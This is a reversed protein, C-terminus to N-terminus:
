AEVAAPHMRSLAEIVQQAVCPWRLKALRDMAPAVLDARRDAQELVQRMAAVWYQPELPLIWAIGSVVERATAYDGVLAPTGCALAELPPRGYGEAVSPFCLAIAGTYLARLEDDSVYGLTHVWEPRDTRDGAYIRKLDSGVLVVTADPHARRVEQMAQLVLGVNKRRDSAGVCLFYPKRIGFHTLTRDVEDSSSPACFPELGQTILRIRDAAVGCTRQIQEASWNSFTLVAQARAICPRVVRRHWLAYSQAFWEPHTLPLVDHVVVANHGGSFSVTNAPHLLVDIAAAGRLAPLELQEWAHGSLRGRITRVGAPLDVSPADAPLFVVTDVQTVLANCLGHAFRQVGTIPAVFFRGNIGVRM